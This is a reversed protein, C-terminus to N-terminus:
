KNETVLCRNLKIKSGFFCGLEEFKNCFWKKLGIESVKIDRVQKFWKIHKQVRLKCV